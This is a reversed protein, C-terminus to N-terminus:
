GWRQDGAARDGPRSDSAGRLVCRHHGLGLVLAGHDGAVGGGACARRCWALHGGFGSTEPCVCSFGKPLMVLDMMKGDEFSWRSGLEEDKTEM